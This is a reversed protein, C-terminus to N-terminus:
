FLRIEQKASEIRERAISFYKSDLEIGIFSRNTRVCAVGTSGSGMCNDLVVGGENTYTKILYELLDVKLTQQSVQAPLQSYNDYEPTVVRVYRKMFKDIDEYSYWEGFKELSYRLWYYSQNYLNNSIKAMECLKEFHKNSSKIKHKEVLYM